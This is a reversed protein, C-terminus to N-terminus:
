MALFYVTLSPSQAHSVQDIVSNIEKLENGMNGALKSFPLVPIWSPLISGVLANSARDRQGM